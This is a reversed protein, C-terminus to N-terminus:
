QEGVTIGCRMMSDASVFVIINSSLGGLRECM